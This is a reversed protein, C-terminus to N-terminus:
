DAGDAAQLSRMRAGAPELRAPLVQGAPELPQALPTWRRGTASAHVKGFVQGAFHGGAVTRHADDLEALMRARTAQALDPDVDQFFRWDQQTVQIASHMLDGIIVVQQTTTSAPDAVVVCLHGPTHGPTARVHVGPAVGTGDDVLEIVESLPAVVTTPDPGGPRGGDIWYAWEQRGVLHRARPFTLATGAPGTASNPDGARSTTWGVHDPHLHTFVVTDIDSPRLGEDALSSLLEGGRVRGLGPIAFDAPGMALDVLMRRSGTRILFAGFSLTLRGGPDLLDSEQAWGSRRSAPFVVAPDFVGSGDPLYTVSAAGVDVRTRGAPVAM